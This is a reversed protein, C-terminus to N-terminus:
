TEDANKKGKENREKWSEKMIKKKWKIKQKRRHEEEQM